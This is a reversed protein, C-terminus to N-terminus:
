SHRGRRLDPTMICVLTFYLVHDSMFGENELELGIARSVKFGQPYRISDEDKFKKHFRPFQSRGEFFNVM